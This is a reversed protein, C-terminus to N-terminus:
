LFQRMDEDTIELGALNIVQLVLFLSIGCEPDDCVTKHHLALKVINDKLIRNWDDQLENM